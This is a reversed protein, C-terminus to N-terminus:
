VGPRRARPPFDTSEMLWGHRVIEGAANWITYHYRNDTRLRRMLRAHRLVRLLRPSPTM